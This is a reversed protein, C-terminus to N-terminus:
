LANLTFPVIVMVWVLELNPHGKFVSLSMIGLDILDYAFQYEIGFVLLKSLTQIMLWVVLQIAFVKYNIHKDLEEWEYQTVYRADHISLYVGSQLILIEYKNAFYLISEHIIFTLFLGIGVECCFNVFYWECGNGRTVLKELVVAM